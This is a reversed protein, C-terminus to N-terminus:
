EGTDKGDLIRGAKQNVRHQYSQPVVKHFASLFADNRCTISRVQERLRAVETELQENKALADRLDREAFRLQNELFTDHEESARPKPDTM